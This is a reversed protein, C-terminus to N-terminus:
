EKASESWTTLCANMTFKITSGAAAPFSQQRKSVCRHLSHLQMTLFQSIAHTWTVKLVGCSNGKREVQLPALSDLFMRMEGCMGGQRGPAGLILVDANRVDQVWLWCMQVGSMRHLIRM